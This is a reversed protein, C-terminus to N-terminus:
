YKKLTTALAKVRKQLAPALSMLPASPPKQFTPLTARPGAPVHSPAKAQNLVESDATQSGHGVELDAGGVM